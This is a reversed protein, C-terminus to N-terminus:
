SSWLDWAALLLGPEVDSASIIRFRGTVTEEKYTGLCHSLLQKTRSSIYCSIESVNACAYYLQRLGGFPRVQAALRALLPRYGCGSFGGFRSGEGTGSVPWSAGM